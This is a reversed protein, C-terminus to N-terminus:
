LLKISLDVVFINSESSINLVHKDPYLLALRRKVNALGVGGTREHKQNSSNYYNKCYFRLENQACSMKIDIVPFKDFNHSYKFSNEIFAMLLVPAVLANNCSEDYAFSVYEPNRFRIKQLQIYSKIYDIEKGLPVFDQKIDYVMYRLMNSLTILANSAESPSKYILSDINNLTNFLFHPNIQAKLLELENKLNINEMEAKMQMDAFWNEFGRVLIGCQELIFTGAIPPLLMGSATIDLEPLILKHFLLFVASILVCSVLSIVLYKVFKKNEFFHIIYFYFFYFTVVAWIVNMIYHPGMNEVKPFNPTANSLEFTYSFVVFVLWFIFHILIKLFLKM